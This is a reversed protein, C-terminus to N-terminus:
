RSPTSGSAPSPSGTDSPSAFRVGAAELHCGRCGKILGYFHPGFGDLDGRGALERAFDLQRHFAGDYTVTKEGLIAREDQGARRCGAEVRDLAARVAPADDRLLADLAEGMARRLDSPDLHLKQPPADGAVSVLAGLLLVAAFPSARM